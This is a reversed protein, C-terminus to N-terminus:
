KQSLTESNGLSVQVGTYVLTAKFEPLEAQKQRRLAPILPQIVVSAKIM